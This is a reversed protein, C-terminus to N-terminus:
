YYNHIKKFPKLSLYIKSGVLVEGTTLTNTHGTATFVYFVLTGCCFLRRCILPLMPGAPLCCCLLLNAEPRQMGCAIQSLLWSLQMRRSCWGRWWWQCWDGDGDGDGDGGSHGSAGVHYCGRHRLLRYGALYGLRDIHMHDPDTQASDPVRISTQNTYKSYM